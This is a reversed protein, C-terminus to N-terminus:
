PVRRYGRLDPRELNEAGAPAVGERVPKIQVNQLVHVTELGTPDIMQIAKPVYRDRSLILTAREFLGADALRKPIFRLWVETDTQHVLEIKFQKRLPEVPMGLLFPRALYFTKLQENFAAWSTKTPAANVPAGFAFNRIWEGFISEASKAHADRKNRHPAPQEPVPPEDARPRDDDVPLAPPDPHFKRNARVAAPFAVPFVIREFPFAVPFVIEDFTRETEDVRFVSKDTWHWRQPAAAQLTYPDGAKSRKKSKEGPKIQAPALRYVARGRQDVALSGTARREIEFTPDYSFRTFTCDLRQIKATAQEWEALIVDLDHAQPNREQVVALRANVPAPGPHIQEVPFGSRLNVSNSVKNRLNVDAFQEPTLMTALTKSFLSGAEFPSTRWQLQVANSEARLQRLWASFAEVSDLRDALNEFKAKHLGVKQFLRAIDGSGALQLKRKQTETLEVIQGCLEIKQQLTQHCRRVAADTSWGQGFVIQDLANDGMLVKSGVQQEGDEQPQRGGDFEMEPDVVANEKPARFEQYVLTVGNVTSRVSRTIPEKFPIAADVLKPKPPPTDQGSSESCVTMLVFFFTGARSLGSIKMALEAETIQM